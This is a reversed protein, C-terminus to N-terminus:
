NEQLAYLGLDAPLHKMQPNNKLANGISTYLVKAAEQDFGAEPFDQLQKRLEEETTAKRRKLAMEPKAPETKTAEAKTTGSKGPRQEQAAIEGSLLVCIGVGLFVAVWRGDRLSWSM